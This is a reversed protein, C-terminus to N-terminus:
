AIGRTILFFGAAALAKLEATLMTKLAGIREYRV